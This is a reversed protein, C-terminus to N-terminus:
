PTLGVVLGAHGQNPGQRRYSYFRDDTITCQEPLHIREAPVGAAVLQDAILGPLDLYMRGGDRRVFAASRGGTAADVQRRVDDQIEYAGPGACPSVVAKTATLDAGAEALRAALVRPMGAVTGRWGTHGIGLVAHTPDYLVVLPCDASLALLPVGQAATVLGDIDDLVGVGACGAAAVATGHVQRGASLRAADLGLAACVAQRRAPSSKADAGSQTSMNGGLGTFAHVLGPLAALGTSRWCPLGALPAYEWGASPYIRGSVTRVSAPNEVGNTGALSDSRHVHEGHNM